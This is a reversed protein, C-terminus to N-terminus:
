LWHSFIYIWSLHFAGCYSFAATLEKGPVRGFAYEFTVLVRETSLKNM